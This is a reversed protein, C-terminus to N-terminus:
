TFCPNATRIHPNIFSLFNLISLTWLSIFSHDFNYIIVWNSIQYLRTNYLTKSNRKITCYIPIHSTYTYRLIRRFIVVLIRHTLFIAAFYLQSRWSPWTCWVGAVGKPFTKFNDVGTCGRYWMAMIVSKKKKKSKCYRM